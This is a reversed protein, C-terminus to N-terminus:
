YYEDFVDKVSQIYKYGYIDSPLFIASENFENLSNLWIYNVDPNPDKIIKMIMNKLHTKFLSPSSNLFITPKLGIDTRNIDRRVSNDWSPFVSWFNNSHKKPENEIYHYCKIIDALNSKYIRTKLESTSLNDYHQKASPIQKNDLAIKVDLNYTLYIKENFIINKNSDLEFILNDNTEQFDSFYNSNCYNPQFDLVGSVVKNKIYEQYINFSASNNYMLILYIGNFGANLVKDNYYNIMDHFINLPIDLPRYIIFLPKNNIKIYKKDRFFTLLYDIHRDWDSKTGYEQKILMNNELGDWRSTWSETAWALCYDVNPKNNDRINEIPKYMVKESGSKNYFWYHYYCLFSINFDRLFKDMFNIHADDMIDFYGLDDHPKMLKNGLYNSDYKKLLTWETFGDSWFKDNEPIQHYQPFVIPIPKIKYLETFSEEQIFYQSYGYHEVAYSFFREYAHEIMGDRLAISKTKFKLAHFINPSLNNIQGYDLYHKYSQEKTKIESINKIYKMNACLYWNWDFSNDGNFESIINDFDYSWFMQKFIEFKIWFMTGGIFQISEYYKIGIKYKELLYELHNQNHVALKDYNYCMSKASGILGIKEDKLIDLIILIRNISGLIPKLLKDRLIDDTKTHIKIVYDFDLNANKCAKLIQFLSAIDFGLNESIIIKIQPYKKKIYDIEPISLTNIINAFIHVSYNSSNVNILNNIYKEMKKFVNINGIHCIGLIKKNFNLKKNEIMRNEYIGFKIFHEIIDKETTLQLDPNLKIYDQTNFKKPLRMYNNNTKGIKIFHKIADIQNFYKLEPNCKIYNEVSFNNPLLESTLLNSHIGLTLYHNEAEYKNKFDLNNLHVYLQWNFNIPLEYVNRNEKQGTELFHKLILKPEKLSLIDPNLKIYTYYNFNNPFDFIFKDKEERLFYVFLNFDDYKKYKSDNLYILYIASNFKYYAYIIKYDYENIPLGIFYQMFIDFVYEKEIIDFKNNYVFTDNYKKFLEYDIATSNIILYIDNLLNIKNLIDKNIVKIYKKIFEYGNISENFIYSYLDRCESEVVYNSINYNDFTIRNLKNYLSLDDDILYFNINKFKIFNYFNHSSYIYLIKFISISKPLINFDYFHEPNTIKLKYIAFTNYGIINLIYVIKLYINIHFYPITIINKNLNYNDYNINDLLSLNNSTNKEIIKYKDIKFTCNEYYINLDAFKYTNNLSVSLINDNLTLKDISETIILINKDM